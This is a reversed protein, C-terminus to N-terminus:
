ANKGWPCCKEFSANNTLKINAQLDTQNLPVENPTVLVPDEEGDVVPLIIFADDVKQAGRMLLRIDMTLESYCDDENTLVASAEGLVRQFKYESLPKIQM